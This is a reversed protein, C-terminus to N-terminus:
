LEPMRDGDGLLHLVRLQGFTEHAALDDLDDCGAQHQIRLTEIPRTRIVDGGHQLVALGEAQGVQVERRPLKLGGLHRVRPQEFRFEITDGGSFDDQAIRVLAQGYTCLQAMGGIRVEIGALDRLPHPPQRISDTSGVRAGQGARHRGHPARDCLKLGVCELLKLAHPAVLGAVPQQQIWGRPAM